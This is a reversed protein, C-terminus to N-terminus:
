LLNKSKNMKAPSKIKKVVNIAPILEIPLKIKSFIFKGISEIILMNKAIKITKFPKSEIFFNFTIKIGITIKKM